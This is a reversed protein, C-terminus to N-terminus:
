EGRQDFAVVEVEEIGGEVTFRWVGIHGFRLEGNGDWDLTAAAGDYDVEGGDALIRLGDVISDAGPVIRDGPAGGVARLQDRIAAGDVSNAAQAALALAITADYTERTYAFAPPAGFAAAYAADWSDASPNDPDSAGATGHMGGLRDGGIAQVLDPSKLADGFAFRTYLGSDVAERLIVTGESEFTLAVLASAGGEASRRLEPLYSAQGGEIAVPAIAGTWAERFAEFLGVGYADNRYLVGVNNFGQERAVRALVPGQAGDSLTTRFFFDGDNVLALAPSTASPSVTPISSPGSVQEAVALANASSTPGVIAHVGEEEVLRRAVAVAKEPDLTSDGVVFQVPQGFVGGAANVHQVALEFAQQREVARAPAGDSLNVMLGLRLPGPDDAPADGGCGALWIALSAALALLVLKTWTRPPRPRERDKAM